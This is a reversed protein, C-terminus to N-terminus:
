DIHFLDEPPIVREHKMSFEKEGVVKFFNSIHGLAIYKGKKKPVKLFDESRITTRFLNGNREVFKGLKLLAYPRIDRLINKWEGHLDISECSGEAHEILFLHEDQFTLVCATRPLKHSGDKRRSVHCHIGHGHDEKDTLVYRPNNVEYPKRIIPIHLENHRGFVLNEPGANKIQEGVWNRYKDSWLLEHDILPELEEHLIKMAESYHEEEIEQLAEKADKFIKKLEKRTSDNGMKELEKFAQFDIKEIASIEKLAKKIRKKRLEISAKRALKQIEAVKEYFEQARGLM